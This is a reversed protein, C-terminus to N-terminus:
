ENIEEFMPLGELNSEAEIGNLVDAQILKYDRMDVMKSNMMM